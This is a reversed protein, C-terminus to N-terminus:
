ELRSIKAGLMMEKEKSKNVVGQAIRYQISMWKFKQQYYNLKSRLENDSLCANEGYKEKM